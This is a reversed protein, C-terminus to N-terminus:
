LDSAVHDVHSLLFINYYEHIEVPLKNWEFPAASSSAIM